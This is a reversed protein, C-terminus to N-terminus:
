FLRPYAPRIPVPWPWDKEAKDGRDGSAMVGGDDKGNLGVSYLLYWGDDTRAYHFPRNVMPDPLVQGHLQASMQELSAPFEGHALRYRELACATITLNVVVDARATKDIAKGTAPALVAFMVTYPSYSSPVYHELKSPRSQVVALLGTQPVNSIAHRLHVLAETQYHAMATQNQRLISRPIARLIRLIAPPRGMVSDYVQPDHMMREMSAIGLAREGQMALVISSPCDFRSLQRQFEALQADSWRHDAMGQWVTNAALHMQAYRVLQSILLPEERLLNAVNLANTADAFAADTEGTALHAACRLQLVQQVGKLVSLHRLLM